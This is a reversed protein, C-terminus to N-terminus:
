LHSEFEEKTYVIIDKPIKLGRLSKLGKLIRKHPKEESHNVVVLIDIDSNNDPKGWAYSGFLFIIEPNFVKVLRNVIDEVLTEKEM